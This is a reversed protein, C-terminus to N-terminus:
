RSDNEEEFDVYRRGIGRRVVEDAIGPSFELDRGMDLRDLCRRLCLAVVPPLALVCGFILMLRGWERQENASMGFDLRGGTLELGRLFPDSRSRVEMTFNDAALRALNDAVPPPPVLSGEM